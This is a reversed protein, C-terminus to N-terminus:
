RLSSVMLRGMQSRQGGTAGTYEPPIGAGPQECPDCPPEDLILERLARDVQISRRCCRPSTTVARAYSATTEPRSPKLEAPCDVCRNKALAAMAALQTGNDGPSFHATQYSNAERHNVIKDYRCEPIRGVPGRIDAVMLKCALSQCFM